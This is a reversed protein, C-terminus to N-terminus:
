SAGIPGHPTDPLPEIRAIIEWARGRSVFHSPVTAPRYEEISIQRAVQQARGTRDASRQSSSRMDDFQVESTMFWIPLTADYPIPPPPEVAEEEAEM